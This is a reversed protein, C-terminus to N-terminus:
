FRVKKLRRVVDDFDLGRLSHMIEGYDDISFNLRTEKRDGAKICAIDHARAADVENRFHGLYRQTGRKRDGSLWAHAEFMGSKAHRTVGKYTSKSTYRVAGKVNVM